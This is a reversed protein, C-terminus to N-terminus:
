KLAPDIIEIGAEERLKKLFDPLAKQTAQQLLTEKIKEKVAALEEMKPPVNEIFKIIHWGFRTTVVESIQGPKLTTAASEFEPPMQGKAFAYEGGQDRTLSDESNEKVLKAFDEGARARKLLDDMKKKKAAQAEESLENLTLRDRFGLHIHQIKWREPAQFLKTNEKYYKEIEENTITQKARLERDIVQRVVAQEMVQERFQEPSLGSARIQRNFASESLARAKKEAIFKEGFALANTKDADTARAALVKTAILHDLVEKETAKVEEPNSPVREGAALKNAKYAIYNEEVESLKIEINKGKAVVRDFLPAACLTTTALALTAIFTSFRM